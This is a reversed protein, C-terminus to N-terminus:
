AKTPPDNHPPAPDYSSGQLLTTLNVLKVQDSWACASAVMELRELWERIGEEEDGFGDGSFKPLPPLQHALMSLSLPDLM